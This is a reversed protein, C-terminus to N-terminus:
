EPRSHVVSQPAKLQRALDALTKTLSMSTLLDERRGGTISAGETLTLERERVDDRLIPTRPRTLVISHLTARSARLDKLVTQHFRQSFEPGEGSIVVIVSKGTERLGLEQSAEVIADLVYSGSGPRAFLRRVGAELLVPDRTYNVLRVPREGFEFLAIEASGGMEKFFGRLAQRMDNISLEMSQSTDALVAIRLPEAATGEPEQASAQSASGAAALAIALGFSKWVSLTVKAM